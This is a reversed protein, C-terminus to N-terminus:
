KKGFYKEIDKRDAGPNVIRRIKYYLWAGCYGIVFLFLKIKNGFRRWDAEARSGKYEFKMIQFNQTLGIFV